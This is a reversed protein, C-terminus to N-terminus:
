LTVELPTGRGVTTSLQYIRLKISAQASGFDTTQQAATYTISPTTSTITRKVTTGSMVDVEYSESTEGVPAVIGTWWWTSSLRTRRTWSATLDGSGNRVGVPATAPLPRLNVGRYTFPVDSATDIDAGETVARYLRQLGISEVPLGVFVNDPDDLLIFYDGLIHTGTAWETGKDGRVFGSIVYSGDSQLIANMFRVIEWRGDNGYAAYNAGAVMQDFTISEPEGGMFDVTLKTQDVLAGTNATLSNRAWGLTSSGNYAQVESYTQGGDTSSVLIAGPWGNTYGAAATGVGASNQITEDVVPIDLAVWLSPGPLGITGDPGPAPAGAATSIYVAANEDKATCTLRGDAEYTVGTLRLEFNGFKTQVAVVDTAELAQYTPPLSISRDNRGLWALFLRRDAMQAVEDDSLVLDLKLEEVNVSATAARERSQTTSAYERVQSVATITVRQPLETDMERTSPLSDGIEDSDTAALDTWPISMVPAQGRPVAKLKYGSMVWDFQYAEQLPEIAGRIEGGPVRYGTIEQTLLSLNLDSPKILSSLSCEKEVVDALTPRITTMEQLNFWNVSVTQNVNEPSAYVVVGSSLKLSISFYTQIGTYIGTLDAIQDISALDASIRYVLYQGNYLYFAGNNFEMRSTPFSLAPLDLPHTSVVTLDATYITIGSATVLYILDGVIAFCSATVTVFSEASTFGALQKVRLQTPTIGAYINGRRQMYGNPGAFAGSVSFVDSSDKWKEGDNDTDGNPPVGPSTVTESAYTRVLGSTYYEYVMWYSTPPYVADWQPAYFVVKEDSIFYPKPLFSTSGKSIFPDTYQAVLAPATDVYQVLEVKFQAAQLSNGFDKLAFDYFAIYTYNRFAPVNGVGYEAEYRPDPMQDDTGHYLKWGKARQNSAIITELDDSGANYILKDSCWIRRVAASQGQCLMLAFTAFYSYTEVVQNSGGKGGSKKRKIKEKLKNNEMYVIQSGSMGFTGYKRPISGGYDSGQFATDTKGVQTVMEKPGFKRDLWSPIGLGLINTARHILSDRGFIQASLSM